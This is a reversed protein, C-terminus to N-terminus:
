SNHRDGRVLRANSAVPRGCVEDTGSPPGADHAAM